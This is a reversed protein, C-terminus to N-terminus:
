AAENGETRKFTMTVYSPILIRRADNAAPADALLIKRAEETDMGYDAATLTLGRLGARNAEHAVLAFVAPLNTIGAPVPVRIITNSM